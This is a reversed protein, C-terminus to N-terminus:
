PATEEAREPAPGALHVALGALALLVATVLFVWHLGFAAGVAGGTMPGFSNGLFYASQTIGFILGRQEPHTAKGILANAAPVIAGVFLGVAFREAVFEPYTQAFAQPATALAAGGLALLLIRREGVRDALRGLVPVAMVGALGTVSFAFGSLTALEPQDGVLDRVFLSVIPFIAQVGFQTLLLVVVLASLGASRTLTRLGALLANGPKPPVPSFREPVMAWCLVFALLSIVGAVFFPQRFSGTADALVGGFIPGILSGTLQGTSLWGLSSALRGRPVQTTVLVVAASSFGALAGMTLRLALLHWPSQALGMLITLVGISASARLVMPKRGHKDSLRGWVPAAFAAVFSTVSALVGAWLDIAAADRVGLEPLFLPMIPSLISFSLSMILQVSVMAWLTVRWRPSVDEAGIDAQAPTDAQAPAM